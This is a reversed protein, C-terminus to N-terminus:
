VEFVCAKGDLSSSVLYKHNASVEISQIIDSHGQFIRVCEASRSDWLRVNGDMCGTAVYSAGLWALCTVGGKHDCTGRSLSHEIDWIILKEDFGGIAALSDSPAFGVCGISDSHPALTNIIQGGCYEHKESVHLYLWELVFNLPVRPHIGYYVGTPM